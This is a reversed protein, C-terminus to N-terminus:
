DTYIMDRLESLFRLNQEMKETLLAMQEGMCSGSPVGCEIDFSPNGIMRVLYCLINTTESTIFKQKEILENLSTKKPPKFQADEVDNTLSGYAM